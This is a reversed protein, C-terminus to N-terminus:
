RNEAPKHCLIQSVMGRATGPEVHPRAKIGADDREIRWPLSAGPAVTTQRAGKPSCGTEHSPVRPPARAKAPGPSAQRLGKARRFPRSRLPTVKTAVLAPGSLIVPRKTRPRAMTMSAISKTRRSFTSCAGPQRSNDRLAPSTTKKSVCSSGRRMSVGSSARSM